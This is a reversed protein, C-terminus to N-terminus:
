KGYRDGGRRQCIREQWFSRFALADARTLANIPRDGGIVDMFRALATDKPVRWKKQQRKSKKVLSAAVIREFEDVMSGIMFVPPEQGGLVAAVGPASELTGRAELTEIQRLIEEVSL